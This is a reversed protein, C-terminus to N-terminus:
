SDGTKEKEDREAMPGLFIALPDLKEIALVQGVPGDLDATMLRSNVIVVSKGDLVPHDSYGVVLILFEVFGKAMDKVLRGEGVVDDTDFISDEAILNCTTGSPSESVTTDHNM